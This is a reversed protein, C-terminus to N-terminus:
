YNNKTLIYNLPTHNTSQLFNVTPLLYHSTFLFHRKAALRYLGHNKHIRDSCQGELIVRNERREDRTECIGCPNGEREGKAGLDLIVHLTLCCSRKREYQIVAATMSRLPIVRHFIGRFNRM